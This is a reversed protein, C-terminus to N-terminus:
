RSGKTPATEHGLFQACANGRFKELQTPDPVMERFVPALGDGTASGNRENAM